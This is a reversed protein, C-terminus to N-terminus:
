GSSTEPDLFYAVILWGNCRLTDRGHCTLLDPDDGSYCGKRKDNQIRQSSKEGNGIQQGM